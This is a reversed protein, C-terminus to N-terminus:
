QGVPQLYGNIEGKMNLKTHLNLNMTGTKLEEIASPEVHEWEGKIYGSNGVPCDGTLGERGQNDKTKPWDKVMGPKEPQGCITQVIPNGQPDKSHFHAMVLGEGSLGSYSIYFRLTEKKIDYTLVAFGSADKPTNAEVAKGDLKKELLSSLDVKFTLYNNNSARGEANGGKHGHAYVVSMASLLLAFSSLLLILRQTM